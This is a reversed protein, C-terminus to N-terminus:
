PKTQLTLTRGLTRGLDISVAGTRGPEATSEYVLRRHRPDAADPFTGALRWSPHAGVAARLLVNDPAVERGGAPGDDAVVYRVPVEALFVAVQEATERLVRQDGGDWSSSSLTQNARLVVHGPRAGDRVALEAIFMGSTNVGPDGDSVLVVGPPRTLLWDAIAGVGHHARPEMRAAALAVDLVLVLAAFATVAARARAPVARGVAEVGRVALWLLMPLAPLLYRVNPPQPLVVHFALVSLGLAAPTTWADPVAGRRVRHALLALAGIAAAALVAPGASQVLYSGYTLARAPLTGSAGERIVTRSLLGASYLQWPGGILLMLGLGYWTAARRLMAWRGALAAWAFPLGLLAVGNGKTLMAASGLAGFVLAHRVALTRSYRRWALAAAVGLAVVLGDVMVQQTVLQVHPLAVFALGIAAARGAGVDEDLLRTVLLAALAIIIAILVRVSVISAPLALMWAAAITHFVPPWMGFAVKPYHLYYNEAFAIPSAPFGHRVYDRILLSTVFHAPEDAGSLEAGYAHRAVQLAGAAVLFGLFLAASLAVARGRM